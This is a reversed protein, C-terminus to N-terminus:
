RSIPGRLLSTRPSPTSDRDRHQQHPATDGPDPARARDRAVTRDAANGIEATTEIAITAEAEAGTGAAAKAESRTQHRQSAAVNSHRACRDEPYAEHARHRVHRLPHHAVVAGEM